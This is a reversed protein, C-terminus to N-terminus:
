FTAFSQIKWIRSLIIKACRAANRKSWEAFLNEKNKFWSYVTVKSVGARAAVAEISTASFGNAFFEARAAALIDAIKRQSAPRDTQLLLKNDEAKM